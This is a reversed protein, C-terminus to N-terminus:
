VQFIQIINGCTDEFLAITAPGMKTPETRFVVGRRRSM